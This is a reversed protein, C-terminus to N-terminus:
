CSEQEQFEQDYQSSGSETNSGSDKDSEQASEASEPDSELKQENRNKLHAERATIHGPLPENFEIHPPPSKM